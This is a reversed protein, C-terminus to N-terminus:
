KLKLTLTDKNCTLELGDANLREIYDHIAWAIYVIAFAVAYQFAPSSFLNEMPCRRGKRSYPREQGGLHFVVAPINLWM